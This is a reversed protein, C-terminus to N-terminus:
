GGFFQLAFTLSLIKFCRVRAVSNIIRFRDSGLHIGGYWRSVVVVINWVNMLDLLQLLRGGAATEGDDDCDRYVTGNAGNRIRWATMNHTAKAAKKDTELLHRISSRADELSSCGTVRGLFNSKKESVVDSLTWEPVAISKESQLPSLDGECESETVLARDEPATETGSEPLKSKLEEVLDFMCPEGVRCIEELVAQASDAFGTAEGKQLNRGSSEPGLVEALAEPYTPPIRLRLEVSAGPVCLVWIGAENSERLVEADYIVNVSTVEDLLVEM